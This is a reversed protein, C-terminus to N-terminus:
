ESGAKIIQLKVNGNDYVMRLQLGKYRGDGNLTVTVKETNNAFLDQYLGNWIGGEETVVEQYGWHTWAQDSARQYGDDLFYMRGKLYPESCTVSCMGMRARIVENSVAGIQEDSTSTGDQLIQCDQLPCFANIESVIEPTPTPQPAAAQNAAGSQCGGTILITLGLFIGFVISLFKSTNM